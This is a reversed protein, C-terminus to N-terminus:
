TVFFANKEFCGMPLIPPAGSNVFLRWVKAVSCGFYLYFLFAMEPANKLLLIDEIWSVILCTVRYVKWSKYFCPSVFSTQMLRKVQLTWALTM